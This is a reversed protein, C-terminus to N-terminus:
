VVEAFFIGKGTRKMQQWVYDTVEGVSMTVTANSNKTVAREDTKSIIMRKQIYIDDNEKFFLYIATNESLIPDEIRLAKEETAFQAFYGRFLQLFSEMHIIRVMFPFQNIIHVVKVTSWLKIDETKTCKFEAKQLSQCYEYLCQERDCESMYKQFLHQEIYIDKGDMGYAFFGAFHELEIEKDFCFVVNGAQCHKEQYLLEFYDRDHVAYLCYRQGLMKNIYDYLEMRREEPWDSILQQYGVFQINMDKEVFYTNGGTIDTSSLPINQVCEGINRLPLSMEQREYISVFDFPEYYQVDAPMLYTFPENNKYMDQMASILLSRMIGKRRQLSNTAVGVIYHLLVEKGQVISIYPNLHLMGSDRVAYVENALYVKSFYFEEYEPPDGFCERWLGRLSPTWLRKEEAETIRVINFERRNLNDTKKM